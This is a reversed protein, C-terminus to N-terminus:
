AKPTVAIKKPQAAATKPVTVTVVGNSSTATMKEADTGPPLPIARYFTGSFRELRHHSKDKEEKEGKKEGRVTLVGNAVSVEM